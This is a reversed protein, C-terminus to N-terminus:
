SVIGTARLEQPLTDAIRVPTLGGNADADGLNAATVVIKGTGESPLNAPDSGSNLHWWPEAASASSASVGLVGLLACLAILTRIKVTM